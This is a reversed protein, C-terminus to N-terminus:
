HLFELCINIFVLFQILLVLSLPLSLIVWLMLILRIYQWSDHHLSITCVCLISRPLSLHDDSHLINFDPCHYLCVIICLPITGTYKLRNKTFLDRGITIIHIYRWVKTIFKYNWSAFSICHNKHNIEAESYKKFFEELFNCM